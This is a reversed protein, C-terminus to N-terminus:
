VFALHTMQLVIPDRSLSILFHASSFRPRIYIAVLVTALFNSNGKRKIVRIQNEVASKANEKKSTSYRSSEAIKKPHVSLAYDRSAEM